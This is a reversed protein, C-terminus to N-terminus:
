DCMCNLYHYRIRYHGGIATLIYLPISATYISILQQCMGVDIPVGAGPKVPTCLRPCPLQLRYDPLELCCIHHAVRVMLLLM